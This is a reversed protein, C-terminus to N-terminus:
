RPLFIGIRNPEIRPQVYQEIRTRDADTREIKPAKGRRLVNWAHLPVGRQSSSNKVSHGLPHLM